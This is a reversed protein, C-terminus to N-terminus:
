PHLVQNLQAAAVQTITIVKNGLLPSLKYDISAVAYVTPRDVMIQPTYDTIAAPVSGADPFAVATPSQPTNYFTVYYRLVNGTRPSAYEYYNEKQEVTPVELNSNVLDLFVFRAEDEDILFDGYPVSNWDIRSSASKVAVNLSNKLDKSLRHINTLDLISSVLFPFLFALMIVLLIITGGKKNKLKNM